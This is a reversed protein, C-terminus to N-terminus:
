TARPFDGGTSEYTLDLAPAAAAGSANIGHREVRPSTTVGNSGNVPLSSAKAQVSLRRETHVGPVFSQSKIESLASLGYESESM